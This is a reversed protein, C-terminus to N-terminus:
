KAWVAASIESEPGRGPVLRLQLVMSVPGTHWHWGLKCQYWIVSSPSLSLRDLRLDCEVACRSPSFRCLRWVCTRRGLWQAVSGRSDTHLIIVLVYSESFCNGEWLVFILCFALLFTFPSKCHSIRFRDSRSENERWSGCSSYVVCLGLLWDCFNDSFMNMVPEWTRALVVSESTFKYM